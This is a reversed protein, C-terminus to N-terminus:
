ISSKEAAEGETTRLETGMCNKIKTNESENAQLSPGVKTDGVGGSALQWTTFVVKVVLNTALVLLAAWVYSRYRLLIKQQENQSINCYIELNQLTNLIKM